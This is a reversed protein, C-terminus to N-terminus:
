GERQMVRDILEGLEGAAAAREATTEAGAELTSWRPHKGCRRAIRNLRAVETAGLRPGAERPLTVDDRRAHSRARLHAWLELARHLLLAPFQVSDVPGVTLQGAGDVSTSVRRGLALGAGLGIAGGLVTGFGMGGVGDLMSGTVAGVLGLTGASVGYRKLADPDFLDGQWTGSWSEVSLAEGGVQLTPFGYLSALEEFAQQERRRLRRKFAANAADRARKGESQSAHSELLRFSLSDVLLEALARAAARRSAEGQKGRLAVVRELSGAMEPRLVALARYFHAEQEASFAWADLPVVTDVSERRLLDTWAERRDDEALVNLVAIIPVGARRLLRVEQRQQGSPDRTVDAVYALVDAELAGRLAEKEERFGDDTDADALFRELLTRGDAGDAEAAEDLWRNIRGATEFGPTDVFAIVPEGGLVFARTYHSRTTGAEERVELSADRTLAAVLSTKGVNSHGVVAVKLPESV